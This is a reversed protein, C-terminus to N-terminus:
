PMSVKPEGELNWPRQATGQTVGLDLADRGNSVAGILDPQSRSLLQSMSRTLDLQHGSTADGRGVIRDFRSLVGFRLDTGSHLGGLIPARIHGDVRINRTGDPLRYGGAGLAEFM